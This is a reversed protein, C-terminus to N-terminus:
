FKYSYGIRLVQTEYYDTSEYKFGDGTIKKRIQMTNLLDTANFFIEGKGKQVGKKIGLDISFRDGIRGQPILDPALWILTYQAEVQEPLHFFGNWKINGSYIRQTTASFAHPEPYLNEVTFANIQNRYGNVGLNFSFIASVNESWLFELGTNYSRGANQSTNYIIPSPPIISAIRTITGTAIKYYVASYLYGSGWGAKYGLEVTNTYQPHLAPNGVKIIEADDYKPFVRIDLEAPRDVRRNYFLSLKHREALKWALRINPFPQTYTYGESKYTNHNPDVDYRVNVYEVRVGAEVEFRSNEFVYNAYIAPIDELYKAYGGANTDLPSNYGPLFLMTTPIERWRYKFGTELRGSKLPKIYDLNIDTVHEDALLKFSDYATYSPLINTFFYKEDERHFTYNIGANLEHGPQKFHHQWSATATATTKVEDELFQWLRTRDTLDKNFFPEDGKDIIKERGYLGAVTFQNHTDPSWDIGTRLTTFTTKRNRKTQQEITDGNDYTRTVFENKNLTPNYFLDGQFFVNVKKKRYNLALSPNIKPTNQFQPRITPLNEKKIWLAGLGTTFSVKGNWGEQKEKKFLINIIGANGNADYRASPNNIIEIRDIASAPINDLSAQNDFGTLATQKDDVLIIVKDSGRLYVKGDQITIGPLNRLAQLVSGGTQSINNGLTYTKKDLKDSVADPGSTVRVETLVAADPELEITSLELNPSLSGVFLPQEHPLYGIYSLQLIYKGPKINALSFRGDDGSVTGAAFINNNEHRLVVNVYSLASDSGKEKIVGSVTVTNNQAWLGGAYCLLLLLIPLIRLFGTLPKSIVSREHGM